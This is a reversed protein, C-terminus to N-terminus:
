HLCSQNSNFVSTVVPVICNVNLYGTVIEIRGMCTHKGSMEATKLDCKSLTIQEYKKSMSM